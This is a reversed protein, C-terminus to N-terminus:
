DMTGLNASNAANPCVVSLGVPSNALAACRRRVLEMMREDQAAMASTERAEDQFRWFRFFEDVFDM